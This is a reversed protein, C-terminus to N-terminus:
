SNNNALQEFLSLRQDLREMLQPSNLAAVSVRAGNHTSGTTNLTIVAIGCRLLLSLLRRNDMDHYGITYFFGDGIPQDMDKDYVINFGHRLFIRKSEAARKEYQRVDTVFDNRGEVAAQMMAALAFQASHSTGSSAVYLFTLIFNDGMRGIGYLERLRSYERKFLSPSFAVVAIREGAYSFIKSGSLMMVYNDTYRSVSRQFPPEFPHSLDQRFDMCLYAMDELVIVDYKTAMDGITRLEDETLCVWSPNNPNSFVMAAVNGKQMFEELKPGLKEARYDLIDFSAVQAGFVKAQLMHPAFGPNIYLITDKDPNLQSCELILNCCAQMSGVTPVICEAPIDQDVYAKIFQSAAKKLEPIGAINPYKSPVGRDLARKQAEIGVQCAPLGPVGIELHLFPEGAEREMASAIAVGQRITTNSVDSIDM